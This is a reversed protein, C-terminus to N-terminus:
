IKPYFKAVRENNKPKGFFRTLSFDLGFDISELNSQSRTKYHCFFPM